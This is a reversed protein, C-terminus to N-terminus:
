KGLYIIVSINTSYPMVTNSNGYINNSCSASFLIPVRNVWVSEACGWSSYSAKYFAGDTIDYNDIAGMNGSINPLGTANTTGMQNAQVCARLPKRFSTFNAIGSYKRAQQVLEAMPVAISAPSGFMVPLKRPLLHNTPTPSPANEEVVPSFPLYPVSEKFFLFTIFKLAEQDLLIYPFASVTTGSDTFSGHM